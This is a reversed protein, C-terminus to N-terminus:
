GGAGEGRETRAAAYEVAPQAADMRRAPGRAGAWRGGSVRDRRAPGPPGATRSSAPRPAPAARPPPAAAAAARPPAPSAAPAPPPSSSPPPPPPRPPPSASPTCPGRVGRRPWPARLVTDTDARTHRHGCAHTQTWAQTHRAEVAEAHGRHWGRWGATERRVCLGRLRGERGACGGRGGRRRATEARWLPGARIPATYLRTDTCLFGADAAAGGAEGGGRWQGPRGTGRIRCAGGSNQDARRAYRV